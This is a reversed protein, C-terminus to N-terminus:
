FGKIESYGREIINLSTAYEADPKEVRIQKTGQTELLEQCKSQQQSLGFKIFRNSFQREM